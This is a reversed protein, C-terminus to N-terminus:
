RTHSKVTSMEEASLRDPKTLLSLPIGIKGVDHLPTAYHLEVIQDHTLGMLRGIECAYRTVRDLHLGITPDHAECALRLRSAIEIGPTLASSLKM